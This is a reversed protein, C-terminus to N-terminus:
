VFQGDRQGDTQSGGGGGKKCHMDPGFGGQSFICSSISFFFFIYLSINKLFFLQHERMRLHFAATSRIAECSGAM